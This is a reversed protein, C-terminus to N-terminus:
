LSPMVGKRLSMPNVPFHVPPVRHSWWTDIESPAFRDSLAQQVRWLGPTWQCEPCTAVAGDVLVAEGEQLDEQAILVWTEGHISSSPCRLYTDEVQQLIVSM